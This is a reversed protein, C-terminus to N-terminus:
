RSMAEEVTAAMPLVTNVKTLELLQLVRPTMGAAILHIGKGKLRVYQTVLMGLGMSDMYPVETLDVVLLNTPKEGQRVEGDFMEELADPTLTNFMDRATFPGSFHLVITGPTQGAKREVSLAAGKWIQAETESM